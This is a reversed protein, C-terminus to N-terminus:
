GASKKFSTGVKQSQRANVSGVLGFFTEHWQLSGPRDISRRAGPQDSRDAREDQPKGKGEKAFCKQKWEAHRQADAQDTSAIVAMSKIKRLLPGVTRGMRIKSKAHPKAKLKGAAASNIASM